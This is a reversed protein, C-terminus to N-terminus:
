QTTDGLGANLVTSGDILGDFFAAELAPNSGDLRNEGPEAHEAVEALWAEDGFRLVYSGGERATFEAPIELDFDTAVVSTEVGDEEFSVEFRLIAFFLGCQPGARIELSEVSDPGEFTLTTHGLGYLSDNCGPVGIGAAELVGGRARQAPNDALRARLSPDASPNGVFTGSPNPCGGVALACVLAATRIM